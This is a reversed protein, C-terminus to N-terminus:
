ALVGIKSTQTITLENWTLGDRVMANLLGLMRRACAIRAVKVPKGRARLQAYHAHMLPNCRIATVAIRYLTTRVVSRGGSIFRKGKFRGSDHDHPATGTLAALQKTTLEGLESLEVALCTASYSAIGPATDLRDVRAQWEPDSAVVSALLADTSRLQEELFAITSTVSPRVVADAQKLRNREAVVLETLQRHRALLARLNRATEEPIPRVLPKMREGYLALVMADLRDNKARKGLSQAFRRISLPNMVVPTMGADDLAIVVGIEYKGTAELVIVDPPAEDVWAILEAWGAKDNRVRLHVGDVTRVADLVAKSVDIGIASYAPETM